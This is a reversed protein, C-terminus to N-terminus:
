EKAMARRRQAREKAAAIAELRRNKEEDSLRVAIKEKDKNQKTVLDSESENDRENSENEKQGGDLRVKTLKKFLNMREEVWDYRIKSVTKMLAKNTYVIAHYILWELSEIKVVKNEPYLASTPSIHLALLSSNSDVSESAAGSAYHYFVPRHPHRKSLHIYFATSLSRLIPEPDCDADRYHMKPRKRRREKDDDSEHRRCSVIPLGVKEMIDQIQERVNRAMSLARHNFYRDRCWDVDYGCDRYAEYINLLTMHDGSSHYFQKRAEEAIIQKEEKKPTYFVEEASVMSVIIVIERSCKYEKASSILVRSLFPNLPFMTMMEGLQTLIGRTDIAELLFLQRLANTVLLPDPPDIFEFNLIDQIGMKKLSLVTGLLSSRQIEPVTEEDMQEYSERCYLRYAKGSATRGARGARQTAAAQSIPVV